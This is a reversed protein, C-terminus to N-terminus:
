LNSSVIEFDHHWEFHLMRFIGRWSYIYDEYNAGSIRYLNCKLFGKEVKRVFNPCSDNFMQIRLVALINGRKVITKTLKILLSSIFSKALNLEIRYTFKKMEKHNKRRIMTLEPKPCHELSERWFRSKRRLHELSHSEIM